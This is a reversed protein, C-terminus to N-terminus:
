APTCVTKHIHNIFKSLKILESKEKSSLLLSYKLVNPRSYYYKPIYINRDQEFFPCDLIYHFEDGLENKNCHTCIRNNRNTNNWRGIDIPLKHNATRFRCLEVVNKNDLIDFYVEMGFYDKFLRYNIAKSANDLLSHWYQEFQDHLNRIITLRLWNPDVFTQTNWIYAFGCENLIKKVNDLWTFHEVNKISMCYCLNYIIKSLKLEKGYLLKAWFSLLKCFKLHVKKIIDNNSFGWVECGYLLIPKVMKDFLDLQIKVSLGHKRGMKLVEYFAVTAKGAISQKARKFNGTRSLEIGLYNLSNVIELKEGNLSFNFNRPLKGRSFVMVKSKDTNVKLKWISCYDQFSNLKINEEKDKSHKQKGIWLGETKNRNIMLGSFNGFIEIENMAVSIDNKSNFYLTTDDASQSIKICHTQEDIKIQFGKIDKNNRLRLAM